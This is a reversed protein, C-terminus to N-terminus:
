FNNTEQYGSLPSFYVGRLVAGEGGGGWGRGDREGGGLGYAM